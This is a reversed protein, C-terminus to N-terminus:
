SAEDEVHIAKVEADIEGIATTGIAILHDFDREDELLNELMKEYFTRTLRHTAEAAPPRKHKAIDADIHRIERAVAEHPSRLGRNEKILANLCGAFFESLKERLTADYGSPPM